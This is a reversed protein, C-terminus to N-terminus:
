KKRRWYAVLVPGSPGNPNRLVGPAVRTWGAAAEDFGVGRDVNLHFGVPPVPEWDPHDAERVSTTRYEWGKLFECHHWFRVRESGGVPLPPMLTEAM